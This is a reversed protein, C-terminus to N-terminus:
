WVNQNMNIYNLQEPAQGVITSRSAPISWQLEVAAEDLWLVRRKQSASPLWFYVNQMSHWSSVTEVINLSIMESPSFISLLIFTTTHLCTQFPTFSVEPQWGRRLFTLTKFCAVTSLRGTPTFESEKKDKSKLHSFVEELHNRVDICASGQIQLTRTNPYFYNCTSFSFIKLLLRYLTSKIKTTDCAKNDVQIHLLVHLLRPQHCRCDRGLLEEKKRM